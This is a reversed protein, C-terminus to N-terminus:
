KELELLLSDLQDLLYSSPDKGSLKLENLKILDETDLLLILKGNERLAGKAAWRANNDYGNASIMIAVNRLAKAYLYKETTYIEKQTIPDTYNKFEFIIYKSNFFKEIISWFAKENNEKIRCILDFRYLKSNSNQQEAWLALDNSLANELLKSCLVEYTRALAKGNQCLRMEDILNETYCGHILWNPKLVGETPEVDDVTYSLSSILSNKLEEDDQVVYLLNAIDVFILRPYQARLSVLIKEDLICSVILILEVQRDISKVRNTLEQAADKILSFPATLTTYEKIAIGYIKDGRRGIYDLSNLLVDDNSDNPTQNTDIGTKELIKLVVEEFENNYFFFFM